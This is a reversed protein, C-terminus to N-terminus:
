LYFIYVKEVEPYKVAVQKIKQFTLYENIEHFPYKGVEMQYIMCGLAWIDAPASCESDELMEPAVYQATGVFTSRPAMSPEIDDPSEMEKSEETKKKQFIQSPRLNTNLFRATGFDICKLHGDSTILLNEPKLDRHAIGSNHLYELINIIQAAFFKTQDKPLKRRIKLYDSFEGGSVYELVYYLKNNEKFTAFLKIINPHDLHTL